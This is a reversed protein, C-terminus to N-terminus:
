GCGSEELSSQGEKESIERPSQEFVSKVPAQEMHVIIHGIM